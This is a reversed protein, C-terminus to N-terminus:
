NRSNQEGGFQSVTNINRIAGIPCLLSLDKEKEAHGEKTKWSLFLVSDVNVRISQLRLQDLGVSQAFRIGGRTPLKWGPTAIILYLQVTSVLACSHCSRLPVTRITIM